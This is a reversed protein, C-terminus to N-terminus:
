RAGLGGVPLLGVVGVGAELPPWRVLGDPGDDLRLRLLLVPLRIPALELLERDVVPPGFETERRSRVALRLLGSDACDSRFSEESLLLRLEEMGTAVVDGVEVFTNGAERCLLEGNGLGFRSM